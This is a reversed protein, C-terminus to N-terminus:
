CASHAVTVTVTHVKLKDNLFEVTRGVSHGSSDETHVAASCVAIMERMRKYARECFQSFGNITEDHRDTRRDTREFLVRFGSSPNEYRKLIKRFYKWFTWNESRIVIVYSM